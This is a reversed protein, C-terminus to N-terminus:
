IHLIKSVRKYLLLTVVSCATAKILNFPMVAFVVLTKLDTIAPNVKTGMGIITELPLHYFESFTPILVFYNMLAGVIILSATGCALGILATKLSKRHKYILAAPLVFACGTVFNAFEGVFATTTGDLLLNILNKLLEMLVGALPGLAFTGILIPIESFDLKYFPPAFWLPLEFLMLVAGLASLIGIKAIYKLNVTKKM